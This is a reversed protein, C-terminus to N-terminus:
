LNTKLNWQFNKMWRRLEQQSALRLWHVLEQCVLRSRLLPHCQLRSDALPQHDLVLRLVVQVVWQVSHEARM